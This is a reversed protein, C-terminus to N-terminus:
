RAQEFRERLDTLPRPARPIGEVKYCSACQRVSQRGQRELRERLETARALIASVADVRLNGLLADEDATQTLICPSVDGEPSISLSYGAWFCAGRPQEGVADLGWYQELDVGDASPEAAGFIDAGNRIIPTVRQWADCSLALEFFSPDYDDECVRLDLQYLSVHPWPADARRRLLNLGGRVARDFTGKGRNREHAARNGGDISLYVYYPSEIRCLRECNRETLLMANTHFQVRTGPFVSTVVGVIEPYAKNMLPEGRWNLTIERIVIGSEKLKSCYLQADELTLLRRAHSPRTYCLACSINCTQSPDLWLWIDSGLRFAM